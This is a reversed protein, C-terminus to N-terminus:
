PTKEKLVIKGQVLGKDLDEVPVKEHVLNQHCDICTKGETKMKKHELAAEDSSPRPEKHCARCSASDWKKINIRANHAYEARYKDFNEKTSLDHNFEGILARAGDVVHSEVRLFFNPPLHCDQCGPNVGLAGYHSSERLEKANYSMSHCALCAGDSSLYKEGGIVGFSLVLALVAGLGATMLAARRKEKLLEFIAKM